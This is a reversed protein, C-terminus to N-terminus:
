DLSKCQLLMPVGEGWFNDFEELPVFGVGKYFQRTRAYHENECSPGLTKVTLFRAGQTRAFTGAFAILATGVGRGHYTPRVGLVHVDVSADSTRTLAMIWATDNGMQAGFAPSTTLDDLYDKYVDYPGFWDPLEALVMGCAKAAAKKDTLETLTPRMTMKTELDIQDRLAQECHEAVTRAVIPPHGGSLHM